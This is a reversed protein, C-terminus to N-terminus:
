SVPRDPVSSPPSEPESGAPSPTPTARRKTPTRAAPTASPAPSPSPAPQLRLTLPGSDSDILVEQPEIGALRGLGLVSEGLRYLATVGAPDEIVAYPTDGSTAVGALRFRLPTPSGAAVGHTRVVPSPTATPQPLQPPRHRLWWLLPGLLLLGLLLVLLARAM